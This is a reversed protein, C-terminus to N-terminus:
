SAAVLDALEALARIRPLGEAAYRDAEDILLARGGLDLFGRVYKPLDDIFLTEGIGVGSAECARRYAEPHPKGRFANFRIDYIASFRDAVGLKALVRRAHEAPSNTLVAKRMPLADLLRGLAPDGEICYEEGEPHVAAFYSETDTFGREVTLWELTTGYKAARERRLALAEEDSMGLYRAVYANMRRVIDKNMGRSGSYLTDDLDFLVLRVM